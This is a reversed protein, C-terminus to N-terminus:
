LSWMVLTTEVFSQVGSKENFGLCIFWNSIFRTVNTALNPRFHVMWQARLKRTLCSAWYKCLISSIMWSFSCKDTFFLLFRTWFYNYCLRLFHSSKEGDLHPLLFGPGLLCFNIIGTWVSVVFRHQANRGRTDQPNNLSWLHSNHTNFIDEHSFYAKDTFHVYSSFNPDIATEALVVSLIRCAHITMRKFYSLRKCILTISVNRKWYGGCKKTLFKFGALM